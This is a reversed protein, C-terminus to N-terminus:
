IESRIKMLLKGLRNKGKGKKGIGWFADSKSDEILIANGTEILKTALDSHQNFKARLVAEMRSEKIKSWNPVIDWVFLNHALIALLHPKPAIMAWDAVKEDKFKGYQYAHESTPFRIKEFVICRKYLNSLFGYKGNSRYFLLKNSEIETKEIIKTQKISLEM